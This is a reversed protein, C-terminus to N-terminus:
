RSRPVIQETEKLLRLTGTGEPTGPEVCEGAGVFLAYNVGDDAHASRFRIGEVGLLPSQRLYDTLYQTPRYERHPSGDYLVPRSLDEAFDKLFLLAERRAANELDFLSPPEPIRVLDFMKIPRCPEFAVVAAYPREDRAALEAVATAVDGSGYFLPVGARSMRNESARDTPACGIDAAQYHPSPTAGARMRGRWILDGPRCTSILGSKQVIGAIRRMLVNLGDWDSGRSTEDDPLHLDREIVTRCFNAWSDRMLGRPVFGDPDSWYRRDVWDEVAGLVRSDFADGCEEKVVRAPDVSKELADPVHGWRVVAGIRGGPSRRFTARWVADGVDALRVAETTRSPCFRCDAHFVRLQKALCGDHIHKLCVPGDDPDAERGAGGDATGAGEM